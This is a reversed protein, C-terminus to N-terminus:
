REQVDSLLRLIQLFLNVIDLYLSVCAVVWDDVHLRNFLLHTDFIIYGSFLLVGFGAMAIDFGRSWPLFVGVLSTVFFVVLAGYLYTGMSDFDYKSQLTFLTLGLFVFTTIVLAELVVDSNFYSVVSGLTVAELLTFVGLLIVNAPSSHRKWYVGLMAGIAGFTPLLMLGPHERTWTVIGDNASMVWGVATTLLIQCFLVGYVKRVFANRVDQSSQSVTVGIKFDGELGDDGEDAWADRAAAGEGALLPEQQQRHAAAADTTAGYAPSGKKKPAAGTYAPPEVTYGQSSSM